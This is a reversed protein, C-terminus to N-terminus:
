YRVSKSSHSNSILPSYEVFMNVGIMIRLSNPEVGSWRFKKERVQVQFIIVLNKRFYHQGCRCTAIGWFVGSRVTRVWETWRAKVQDQLQLRLTLKAYRNTVTSVIKNMFHPGVKRKIQVSFTTFNITNTGTNTNKIKRSLDTPAIFHQFNCRASSSKSYLCKTNWICLLFCQLCKPYLLAKQDRWYLLTNHQYM